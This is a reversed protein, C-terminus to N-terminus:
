VSLGKTVCQFTAKATGLIATRKDLFLFNNNHLSGGCREIRGLIGRRDVGAIFHNDGRKDAGSDLKKVEVNVGGGRNDDERVDEKGLAVGGGRGQLRQRCKGDGEDRPRNARRQEAVEAVAHPALHRQHGRQQRHADRRHNDAQQRAVLTDADHRRQQQRQRAEALAQAEAAFPAARRQQRRFVRRRFLAGQVAGERLEPGGMPKKKAM